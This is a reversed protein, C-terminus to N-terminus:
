ENEIEDNKSFQLKNDQVSEAAFDSLIAALQKPNSMMPLHGSEITIIKHAKLNKAMKDQFTCPISKDIGLKIYLRNTDPLTFKIKTRYLAKSEPIFEDLIKSTQEATLDNCLESVILKKPPKTGFFKLILPMILKQPVSLSSVFSNGSVPIISGIAVFGILKHNFHNALILGVFAGISHAVIIFHDKKWGNLQNTASNIYDEFTLKSIANSDPKINSFDIPLTPINIEEILDDWVSGNLGAGHILVIGVSDDM